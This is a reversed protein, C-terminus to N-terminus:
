LSDIIAQKLGELQIMTEEKLSSKVSVTPELVNMNKMQALMDRMQKGATVAWTGNDIIGITRNQVNLQQMDHLLNYMIPYIAGNYTPAALVIHSSRFIEAILTSIHTNSIDYVAINKVGEDALKAALVNAANETNGYMSAYIIVVSKDEPRYESWHQYKDLLYELNSRWIPGHLPCIMKINLASLKGIAAKVQLGYKGVINCYYRRADDLWDCDFNIEDNFINGNLAGFSGFADASFLINEKEEYAVMVEPWHVMPTMYFRLTHEGLELADGEKVTITKGELECSYFQNLFVFTKANGVLKANPFRLVLNMINACHDPEMHNIVIYDLERGNLVHMVNEIFQESISSDATDIVATKEDTIVYSNYSVGRSIPFINEFLALRRDSGGVWHINDSVKRTCFM